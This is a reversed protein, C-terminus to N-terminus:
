YNSGNIIKRKLLSFEEESIMGGSKLACLERLEKTISDQIHGLKVSNKRVKYEQVVRNVQEQFKRASAMNTSSLQSTSGETRRIFINGYNLFHGLTGYTMYAEYIDFVPVQLYVKKWPLFGSTIILNHATLAWRVSLLSLTKAGQVLILVIGALKWWFTFNLLVLGFLILIFPLILFLWHKRATSIVDAKQLKNTHQKIEEM